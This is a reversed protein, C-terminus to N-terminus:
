VKQRTRAKVMNLHAFTNVINRVGRDEQFGVVSAIDSNSLGAAKMQSVATRRLYHVKLETPLNVREKIKNAYYNFKYISYPQYKGNVPNMSPAVYEQFGFDREQQKLLDILPDEIELYLNAGHNQALTVIKSKFDISDWKLTRIIGPPQAWEYILQSIVGINRCKFDAYCAELFKMVQSHTWIPTCITKYPKTQMVFPNPIGVKGIHFMTRCLQVCMRGITASYDKMIRNYFDVAFEKDISAADVNLDPIYKEIVQLFYLYQKQTTDKLNLMRKHTKYLNILDGFTKTTMADEMFIPLPILGEGSSLM